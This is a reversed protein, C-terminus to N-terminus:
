TAQPRPWPIEAPASLAYGSESLKNRCRPCLDYERDCTLVSGHGDEMLCGRTPCHPLGFTHGIEHVAVKGFRIRGHQRDRAKRHCRFSSLVATRGDLTALGLIGWDKHPVKTTSIDVNTLGVIRLGNTPLRPELFDLLREARYRGRAPYFATRPLPAPALREIRLQYFASLSQMVFGIDTGMSGTGLPQIFLAPLKSAEGAPAAGVELPAAFSAVLASTAVLWERRGWGDPM